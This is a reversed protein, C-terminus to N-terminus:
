SDHSRDLLGDEIETSVVLPPVGETVGSRYFTVQNDDALELQSDPPQESQQPNDGLFNTLSLFTNLNEFLHPQLNIETINEGQLNYLTLNDAEPPTKDQFDQDINMVYETLSVSKKHVSMAHQSVSSFSVFSMKCYNCSFGRDGHASQTHRKLSYANMFKRDCKTCKHPNLDTHLISHNELKESSAFLKKCTSCKFTPNNTTKKDHVPMHFNLKEQSAFYKKCIDCKFSHSSHSLMHTNLRWREFFIVGCEKCAHIDRGITSQLSNIKHICVHRKRSFTTNFSMGCERCIIKKPKPDHSTVSFNKVQPLAIPTGNVQNSSVADEEKISDVILLRADSHDFRSDSFRTDDKEAHTGDSPNNEQDVITSSSFGNQIHNCNHTELEANTNFKDNCSSCRHVIEPYNVPLRHTRRRHRRLNKEKEFQKGCIECPYSREQIPSKINNELNISEVQSSNVEEKVETAVTEVEFSHKLHAVTHEQFLDKTKFTEHCFACPFLSDSYSQGAKKFHVRRRHRGLNKKSGFYIGCDNCPYPKELTPTTHIEKVSLSVKHMRKSHRNLNMKNNFCTGCIRCAHPKDQTPTKVIERVFTVAKHVGRRHRNLIDRNKFSKTCKECKYPFGITPKTEFPANHYKELHYNLYIEQSFCSTCKHCKFLKPIGIAYDEHEETKIDIVTTQHVNQIHHLFSIRKLFIEECETCKLPKNDLSCQSGDEEDHVELKIQFKVNEDIVETKVHGQEHADIPEKKIHSRRHARFCFQNRMVRECVICKYLNGLGQVHRKLGNRTLFSKGCDACVYPEFDRHLNVYHHHREQQSYFIRTGACLKCRYVPVNTHIHLHSRFCKRSLFKGCFECLVLSVQQHEKIKHGQLQSRNDFSQLCISCTYPRLSTCVPTTHLLFLRKFIFGRGCDDCKFVKQTDCMSATHEDRREESNFVKLCRQCRYYKVSNCKKRHEELMKKLIYKRNCNECGFIRVRDCKSARHEWYREKNKFSIKCVQCKFSKRIKQYNKNSTGLLINRPLLAEKSFSDKPLTIVGTEKWHKYFEEDELRPLFVKLVPTEQSQMENTDKLGKQTHSEGYTSYINTDPHKWVLHSESNDEEKLEKNNILSLPQLTRDGTMIPDCTEEKIFDKSQYSTEEQEPKIIQTFCESSQVKSANEKPKEVQAILDDGKREFQNTSSEHVSESVDFISSSLGLCQLSDKEEALDDVLVPNVKQKEVIIIIDDINTELKSKWSEITNNGTKTSDDQSYTPMIEFDYKLELSILSCRKLSQLGKLDFSPLNGNPYNGKETDNVRKPLDDKPFRQNKQDKSELNFHIEHPHVHSFTKTSSQISDSELIKNDLHHSEEEYHELKQSETSSCILPDEETSGDIMDKNEVFVSKNGNVPTLNSDCDIFSIKDGEKNHNNDGNQIIFNLNPQSQKHDTQEKIESETEQDSDFSRDDCGFYNDDCDLSPEFKNQDCSSTDDIIEMAKSNEFTVSPLIDSAEKFIQSVHNLKLSSLNQQPSVLTDDKIDKSQNDKSKAKSQSTKRKQSKKRKVSSSKSLAKKSPRKKSNNSNLLPSPTHCQETSISHSILTTAIMTENHKAKIKSGRPNTTSKLSGVEFKQNSCVKEVPVHNEPTSTVRCHHTHHATSKSPSKSQHDQSQCCPESCKLKTKRQRTVKSQSTKIQVNRKMCDVTSRSKSIVPSPHSSKVKGRNLNSPISEHVKKSIVGPKVNMKQQIKIEKASSIDQPCNEITSNPKPILTVHVHNKKLKELNYEQAINPLEYSINDIRKPIPRQDQLNTKFPRKDSHNFEIVIPDEKVEMVSECLLLPSFDQSINNEKNMKLRKRSHGMEGTNDLNSEISRKALSNASSHGPELVMPSDKCPLKRKRQYKPRLKQSTSNFDAKIECSSQKTKQLANKSVNGIFIDPPNDELISECLFSPSFIENQSSHSNEKVVKRSKKTINEKRTTNKKPSKKPSTVDNSPIENEPIIESAVSTQLTCECLYASLNFSEEGEQKSDKLTSTVTPNNVFKLLSTSKPSRKTLNKKPQRKSPKVNRKTKKVAASSNNNSTKKPPM